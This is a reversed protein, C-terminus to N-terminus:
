ARCIATRSSKVYLLSFNGFGGARAEAAAEVADPGSGVIIEDGGSEHIAVWKNEYKRLENLFNLERQELTEEV